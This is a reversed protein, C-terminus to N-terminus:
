LSFDFSFHLKFDEQLAKNIDRAQYNKERLYMEERTLLEEKFFIEEKNLPFANKKEEHILKLKNITEIYKKSVEDFENEKIDVVNLFSKIEKMYNKFGSVNGLRYLMILTGYLSKQHEDSLINVFPHYYNCYDIIENEVKELDEKKFKSSIQETELALKTQMRFSGIISNFEIKKNDLFEKVEELSNGDSIKAIAKILCDNEFLLYREQELIDSFQILYLNNLINIKRETQEFKIVENILENKLNNFEELTM